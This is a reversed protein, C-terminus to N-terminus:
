FMDKIVRTKLIDELLRASLDVVRVVVTEGGAGGGKGDGIVNMRRAEEGGWSGM